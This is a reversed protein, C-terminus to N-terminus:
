LISRLSPATLKDNSILWALSERIAQLSTYAPLYGLLQRAKEISMSPSHAIHDWTADSDSKPVTERWNNWPLFSLRCPQGALEAIAEAYGRLTIARESVVNFAEGVALAQKDVALAFGQAVDDAHVHHLTEMGLNPLVLEEGSALREFVSLDLNAAPNVPQWGPGVIHGPHLVTAPLGGGRSEELLLAEIEAKAIGYHGFPRRPADESTPVVASPGYVWITGCHLLYTGQPRLAEVLQRVADTEFCILDIVADAELDAIRRGFVGKADEADRDVTVELVRPWIPGQAYYRRGHRSLAVVEHGQDVLRPVLYGGIHGTAGIVVVRM